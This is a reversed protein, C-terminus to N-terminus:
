YHGIRPYGAVQQVPRRSTRDTTSTPLGASAPKRAIIQVNAALCSDVVTSHEYNGYNNGTFRDLIPLIKALAFFCLKLPRHMDTQFCIRQLLIALTRFPGCSGRVQQIIFGKEEFLRQIGFTTFHYYDHPVHHITFACNASFVAKGGCVLVRYVEAIFIGPEEVQELWGTCVGVSFSGDPLPLHYPNAAAVAEGTPSPAPRPHLRVYNPFYKKFPANECNLILTREGTATKALLNELDPLTLKARLWTRFNKTAMM